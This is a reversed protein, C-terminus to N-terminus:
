FPIEDSTSDPQLEPQRPQHEVVVGPARANQLKPPLDFDNAVIVVKSRKSGDNATWQEQELRGSLTVRSGKPAYQRLIEAGKGFIKFDFFSTRDEGKVKRTVAIGGSGICMGDTTYRLEVDRTLNGSITATNIM